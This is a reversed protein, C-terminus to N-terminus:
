QAMEIFRMLVAAVEARTAQGKPDFVNGPKGNIIGVSQAWAVADAAWSSIDASDAFTNASDVTTDIGMHKAFQMIMTVLQERTINDNPSFQGGGTGSAIGAEKAWDAADSFYEGSLVDTFAGTNEPNPLGAARHLVTVLM